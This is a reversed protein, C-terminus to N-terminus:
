LARSTIELSTSSQDSNADKLRREPFLLDSELSWKSTTTALHNLSTPTALSSSHSSKTLPRSFRRDWVWRPAQCALTSDTPLPRVEMRAKFWRSSSPKATGQRCCRNSIVRSSSSSRTKSIRFGKDLPMRSRNDWLLPQLKARLCRWRRKTALLM